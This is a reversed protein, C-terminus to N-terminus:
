LNALRLPNDASSTKGAQRYTIFFQFEEMGRSVVAQRNQDFPGFLRQPLGAKNTVPGFLQVPRNIGHRGVVVQRCGSPKKLAASSQARLASSALIARQGARDTFPPPAFNKPKKKFFGGGKPRPPNFHLLACSVLPQGAM